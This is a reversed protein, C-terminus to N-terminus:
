TSHIACARGSRMARGSERHAQREATRSGTSFTAEQNDNVIRLMARTGHVLMTKPLGRAHPDSSLRLGCVHASDYFLLLGAESGPEIEVDVEVTYM